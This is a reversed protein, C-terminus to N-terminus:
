VGLVRLAGELIKLFSERELEKSKLGLGLVLLREEEPTKATIASAIQTAFLQGTTEREDGSAGLITTATLNSLPLLESGEFNADADDLDYSAATPVRRDSHSPSASRM